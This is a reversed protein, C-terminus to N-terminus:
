MGQADFVQHLLTCILSTLPRTHCCVGRAPETRKTLSAGTFPGVDLLGAAAGAWAMKQPPAPLGAASAGKEKWSKGRSASSPLLEASPWARGCGNTGM